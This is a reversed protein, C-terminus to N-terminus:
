WLLFRRGCPESISIFMVPAAVRFTAASKTDKVVLEYNMIRLEYNFMGHIWVIFADFLQLVNFYLSVFHDTCGLSGGPHGSNVAHVMRVIDRRVQAAIDKLEEISKNHPNM